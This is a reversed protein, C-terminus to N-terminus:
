VIPHNYHVVLIRSGHLFKPYSDVVMALLCADKLLSVQFYSTYTKVFLALVGCTLTKGLLAFDLVALEAHM